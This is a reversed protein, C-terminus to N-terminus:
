IIYSVFLKVFSPLSGVSKVCTLFSSVTEKDSEREVGTEKHEDFISISPSKIHTSMLGYTNFSRKYHHTEQAAPAYRRKETNM